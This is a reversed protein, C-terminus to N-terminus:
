CKARLCERMMSGASEARAIAIPHQKPDHVDGEAIDDLLGDLENKAM